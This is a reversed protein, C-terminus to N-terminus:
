VNQQVPFFQSFDLKHADDGHLFPPVHEISGLKFLNLHTQGSPNLPNVQLSSTCSHM